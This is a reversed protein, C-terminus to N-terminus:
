TPGPCVEPETSAVQVARAECWSILQRGSILYNRSGGIPIVPLGQRKWEQITKPGLGLADRIQSPRYVADAILGEM